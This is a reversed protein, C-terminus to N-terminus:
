FAPETYFEFNFLNKRVKTKKRPTTSSQVKTHVRSIQETDYFFDQSVMKLLIKREKKAKKLDGLSLDSKIDLKYQHCFEKVTLHLGIFM